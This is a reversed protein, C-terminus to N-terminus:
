KILDFKYTNIMNDNLYWAAALGLTAIGKGTKRIINELTMVDNVLFKARL